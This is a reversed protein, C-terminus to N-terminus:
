KLKIKYVIDVIKPSFTFLFVKIFQHTNYPFRLCDILTTFQVSKRVICRDNLDMRGYISTLQYFSSSVHKKGCKYTLKDLNLDRLFGSLETVVYLIDTAKKITPTKTISEKRQRYAYFINNTQLVKCNPDILLCKLWFEQDEYAIGDTFKLNNKVLYEKKFFGLVSVVEHGKETISKVLFDKGCLPVNYYSINLSKKTIFKSSEDCYVNYWGRIIDLNHKECIKYFANAFDCTYFDDSDIFCLYEGKANLVGENRAASLGKNKKNIVKIFNYKNKYENVVALSNDTSGDNIVIIEKNDISQKSISELCKGIYKEVNYVPVIFSVKINDEM